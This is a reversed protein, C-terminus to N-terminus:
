TWKVPEQPEIQGKINVYKLPNQSNANFFHSVKKNLYKSRIADKAVVGVFEWRGKADYGQPDRTSFTSGAPFWQRVEYVERVVGEYVALVIKVKQRDEGIIWVGRTYDYLEVPPMEYLVTPNIRILLAPEDIAEIEVADYIDMLEELSKRGFKSSGHGGKRNTLIGLEYLDIVASEVTLATKEDLGHLLIDILPEHGAARIADITKNKESEGVEKLHTQCRAGVGKGVYFISNDRPDILLYVYCQLKEAVTPSMRKMEM